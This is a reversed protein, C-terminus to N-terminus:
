KYWTGHLAPNATTVKTRTVSIRKDQTQQSFFNDTYNSRINDQETVDM